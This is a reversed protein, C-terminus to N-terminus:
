TDESHEARTFIHTIKCGHHARKDDLKGIMPGAKKELIKDKWARTLQHRILEAMKFNCIWFKRAQQHDFTSM